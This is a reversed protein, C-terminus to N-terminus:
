NSGPPKTYAPLGADLRDAVFDVIEQTDLYAAMDAWRQCQGRLVARDGPALAGLDAVSAESLDQCALLLPNAARRASAATM